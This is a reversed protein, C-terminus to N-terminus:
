GKLELYKKYKRSLGFVEGQYIYDLFKLCDKKNRIMISSSYSINGNKAKHNRRYISYKCGLKMFLEEVFKWDQEYTSAISIQVTYHKKNVYLCGDADFYGRWWYYKIDEDLNNQVTSAVYSKQIYNYDSFYKHLKKNSISFERQEKRNDRKYTYKCWKGTSDFVNEVEDLDTKICKLSINTSKKNVHGDGWLIGLIYSSYKDPNIFRNIDVRCKEDRKGGKQRESCRKSIVEKSMSLGLSFAMVRISSKSKNIPTDSGYFQYDRKLIELEEKSWGM